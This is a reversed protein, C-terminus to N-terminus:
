AGDGPAGGLLEGELTGAAVRHVAVRDLRGAVDAGPALLDRDREDDVAARLAAHRIVEVVAPVRLHEGTGTVAHDEDVKVTRGAIALREGIGDPAVPAALRVLVQHFPEISRQGAIRPEVAAPDGSETGRVATVHDVPE